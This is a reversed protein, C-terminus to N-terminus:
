KVRKIRTMRGEGGVRLQYDGLVGRSIVVKFPESRPYQFRRPELQRWVQGNAFTFVLRRARDITVESVTATLKDPEEEKDELYERGFDDALDGDGAAPAVPAATAVPALAVDEAPVQRGDEPAAVVAETAPEPAAPAEAASLDALSEFCALKSADTSMASCRALDDRLVSQAHATICLTSGLFLFLPARLGEIFRANRM